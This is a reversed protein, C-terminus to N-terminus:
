GEAWWIGTEEGDTYQDKDGGGAPAFPCEVDKGGEEKCLDLYGKLVIGEGAPTTITGDEGKRPLGALTCGLSDPTEYHVKDVRMTVKIKRTAGAGELDYVSGHYAAGENNPITVNCMGTTIMSGGNLCELEFPADTIEEIGETEPHKTTIAHYVYNCGTTDVKTTNNGECKDFTPHLTLTPAKSKETGSFTVHCTIKFTPKSKISFITIGEGTVVAKETEEVFEGAALATSATAAGIACVAVLAVGLAKLKRTM